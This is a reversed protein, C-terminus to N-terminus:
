EAKNVWRAIVVAIVAVMTLGFAASIVDALGVGGTEHYRRALFLAIGCFAACSILIIQMREFLKRSDKMKKGM